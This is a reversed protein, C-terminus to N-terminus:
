IQLKISRKGRECNFRPINCHIKRVTYTVGLFWVRVTYTYVMKMSWLDEAIHFQFWSSVTYGVRTCQVLVMQYYCTYVYLSVDPLLLFIQFYCTYVHLSVDPLLLFMQYFCTYVHLSVYPLLLFMQYDYFCRTIGRTSRFMHYYYFCRTFARTSMSLFMQYHYFCRTITSVDPLLVHLCTSFCKATGPVTFQTSNHPKTCVCTSSVNLLVTLNVLWLHLFSQYYVACKSVNLPFLVRFFM